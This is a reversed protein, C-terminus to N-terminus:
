ASDGSIEGTGTYSRNPSGRSIPVEMGMESAIQPGRPTGMESAIQHGGATHAHAFTTSATIGHSLRTMALGGSSSFLSVFQLAFVSLDFVLM